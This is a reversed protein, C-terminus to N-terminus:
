YSDINVKVYKQGQQYAAIQVLTRIANAVKGGKGIVRGMDDNSVLVQIVMTDPDESEFEKVSVMDKHEAVMQILQETVEVLNM